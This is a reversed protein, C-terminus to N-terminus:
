SRGPAGARRGLLFPLALCVCTLVFVGISHIFRSAMLYLTLLLPGPIADIAAYRWRQAAERTAGLKEIVLPLAFVSLVCLVALGALGIGLFTPTSPTSKDWPWFLCLLVVFPILYLLVFPARMMRLTARDTM